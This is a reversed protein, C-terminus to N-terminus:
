RHLFLEFAYLNQHLREFLIIVSYDISNDLRSLMRQPSGSTLMQVLDLHVESM